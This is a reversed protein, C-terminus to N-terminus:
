KGTMQNDPLNETEHAYQPGKESIGFARLVSLFAAFTASFFRRAPPGTDFSDL